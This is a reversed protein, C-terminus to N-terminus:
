LSKTCHSIHEMLSKILTCLLSDIALGPGFLINQKNTQKNTQKRKITEGSYISIGRGPISDLSYSHGWFAAAAIGSGKFWQALVPNFRCRGLSGALNKVWQAM